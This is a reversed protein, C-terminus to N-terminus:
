VQVRNAQIFDDLDERKYRVSRGFRIHSIRGQKRWGWLTRYAVALYNAAEQEAMLHPQTASTSIKLPIAGTSLEEGSTPVLPSNDANRLATLIAGADATRLRIAQLFARMVQQPKGADPTLL